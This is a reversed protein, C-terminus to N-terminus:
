RRKAAKDPVTYRELTDGRNNVHVAKVDM